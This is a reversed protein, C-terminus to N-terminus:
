DTKVVKDVHEIAADLMSRVAMLIEKRAKRRNETFGPPLMNEYTKHMAERAAKMHQRAEEFHPDKEHETDKEM